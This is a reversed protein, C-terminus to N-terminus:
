KPAYKEREEDNVAVLYVDKKSPILHEWGYRSCLMEMFKVPIASDTGIKMNIGM